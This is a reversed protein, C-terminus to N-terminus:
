STTIWPMDNVYLAVIGTVRVVNTATVQAMVLDVGSMRSMGTVRVVNTVMVQAMM